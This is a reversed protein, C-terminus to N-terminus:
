LQILKVHVVSITHVPVNIFTEIINSKVLVNDSSTFYYNYGMCIVIDMIYNYGMCYNSECSLFMITQIKKELCDQDEETKM